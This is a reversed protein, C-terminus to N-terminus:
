IVHSSFITCIIFFDSLSEWTIFLHWNASVGVYELSSGTEPIKHPTISKINKDKWNTNYSVDKHEIQNVKQSFSVIELLLQLNKRRNVPFCTAAKCLRRVKTAANVKMCISEKEAKNSCCTSPKLYLLCLNMHKLIEFLM